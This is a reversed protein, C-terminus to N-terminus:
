LEIKLTEWMLGIINKEADFNEKDIKTIVLFGRDKKGHAVVCWYEEEDKYKLIAKKGDLKTGDKLTM